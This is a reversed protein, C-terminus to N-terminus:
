NAWSEEYGMIRAVRDAERKLIVGFEEAQDAAIVEGTSELMEGWYGRANAVQRMILEQARRKMETRTMKEGTARQITDDM